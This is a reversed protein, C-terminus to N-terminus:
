HGISHGFNSLRLNDPHGRGDLYVRRWPNYFGSQGAIIIVDKTYYFKDGSDSILGSPECSTIKANHLNADLSNRYADTIPLDTIKCAVGGSCAHKLGAIQNSPPMGDGM